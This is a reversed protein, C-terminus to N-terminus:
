QMLAESIKNLPVMSRDRLNIQWVYLFTDTPTLLDYRAEYKYQGTSLLIKWGSDRIENPNHTKLVENRKAAIRNILLGNRYEQLIRRAFGVPDREAEVLNQMSQSRARYEPLPDLQIAQNYLRLAEAHKQAGEAKLGENYIDKAQAIDKQIERMRAIASLAPAYDPIIEFTKTYHLLAHEFDREQVLADGKQVYLRTIGELRADVEAQKAPNYQVAIRFLRDAAMYDQADIYEEAQAQYVDSILANIRSGEVVPYLSLEFLEKLADTYYEQELLRQAYDVKTDIFQMVIYRAQIEYPNDPYNNYLFKYDEWSKERDQYENLSISMRRLLVQPILPSQPIERMIDNMYKLSLVKDNTQYAEDGMKYYLKALELDAAESNALKLFRVALPRNDREVATKGLELYSNSRMLEARTVIAGNVGTEILADLENIAGVYLGKNYLDEASRLRNIECASLLLLLPILLLTAARLIAVTHPKYM